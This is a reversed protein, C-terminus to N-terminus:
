TGSAAVLYAASAVAIAVAALGFAFTARKLRALKWDAVISTRRQAVLLVAVTAVHRDQEPMRARQILRTANDPAVRGFTRMVAFLGYLGAILLLASAAILAAIFITRSSGTVKDDGSVLTNNVLVVTTTLGAVQIFTGARSEIGGHRSVAREWGSRADEVSEPSVSSGPKTLSSAFSDTALAVPTRENRDRADDILARPAGWPLPPSVLWLTLSARTRRRVGTKVPDDLAVPCCARRLRLELSAAATPGGRRWLYWGMAMGVPVWGGVTLLELGDPRRDGPLHAATGRWRYVHGERKGYSWDSM